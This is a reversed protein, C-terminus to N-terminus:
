VLTAKTYDSDDEKNNGCRGRHRSHGAGNGHCSQHAPKGTRATDSESKSEGRKDTELCGRDVTFFGLVGLLNNGAGSVPSDSDDGAPNQYQQRENEPNGPPDEGANTGVHIRGKKLV